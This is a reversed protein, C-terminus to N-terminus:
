CVHLQSNFKINSFMCVTSFHQHGLFLLYLATSFLGLSSTKPLLAVKCCWLPPHDCNLPKSNACHPMRVCQRMKLRSMTMSIEQPLLGYSTHPGFDGDLWSPSHSFPRRHPWFHSSETIVQPRWWQSVKKRSCGWGLPTQQDRFNQIPAIFPIWEESLFPTRRFYIAITM